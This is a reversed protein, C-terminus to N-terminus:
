IWISHTSESSNHIICWLKTELDQRNDAAWGGRWIHCILNNKVRTSWYCCALQSESEEEKYALKGSHYPKSFLSLKQPSNKNQQKKREKTGTLWYQDVNELFLSLNKVASGNVTIGKIVRTNIEMINTNPISIRLGLM